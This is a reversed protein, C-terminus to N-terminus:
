VTGTYFFSVFFHFLFEFLFEFEMTTAKQCIIKSAYWTIKDTALKMVFTFAPTSYVVPFRHAMSHLTPDSNRDVTYDWDKYDGGYVMNPGFPTDRGLNRHDSQYRFTRTAQDYFIGSYIHEIKNENALKRVIEKQADTRIEPLSANLQKCISGANALNHQTPTVFFQILSTKLISWNPIEIPKQTTVMPHSRKGVEKAIRDCHNSYLNVLESQLELASALTTSDIKRTIPLTNQNIYIAQNPSAETYLLGGRLITPSPHAKELLLLLIFLSLFKKGINENAM